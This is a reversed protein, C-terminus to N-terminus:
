YNRTQDTWSRYYKELVAIGFNRDSKNRRMKLLNLLRAKVMYTVM